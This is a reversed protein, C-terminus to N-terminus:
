DYRGRVFWNRRTWDYYIRYIGNQTKARASNRDVSSAFRIEADWEDQRWGREDWWDGSTRWPGSAAVVEGRAGRFSIHCPRGEQLEVSAPAEPRFMRFAIATRRPKRGPIEGCEGSNSVPGTSAPTRVPKAEEPISVFPAMRFEGPRHTDVPQPSGVNSNGVLAALRAITVELKEPDPSDPIFLGKQGARPRGPEAALFIKRISGHPPDAQLHLRLLKLLTAPDRMPVPLRLVAQYTKVSRDSASHKREAPSDDEEELDLLDFRLRFASAALSRAELRACLQHLLRGLLFSLPELETIASDLAMEEEFSIQPQALTLARHHAGRAQEHLRVGEQGLRESLPLLPLRALEGCTHIGWRQLVELTAASPLLVEAPLPSLREAERGPPILTIGSFGRAALIAAEINSAVAIRPSLGIGSAREALAAALKKVSKFLSTLGALDLVLTGPAVAEVRPSVSWAADLLAAHASTELEPARRRIEVGSFQRAQSGGMGFEIGAQLASEDAAIIKWLPPEGEVLALARGRLDPEARVVAQLLFNPAHISAFAM